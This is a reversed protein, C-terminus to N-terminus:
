RRKILWGVIVGAALAAGLALVPRTKVVSTIIGGVETLRDRALDAMDRVSDSVPFVGERESTQVASRTHSNSPMHSEQPKLTSVPM